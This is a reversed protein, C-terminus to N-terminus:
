LITRMARHYSIIHSWWMDTTWDNASIVWPKGVFIFTIMRRVLVEANQLQPHSLNRSNPLTQVETWLFVLVFFVRVRVCPYWSLIIFICDSYYIWIYVIGHAHTNTTRICRSWAHLFHRGLDLAWDGPHVPICRFASPHLLCQKLRSQSFASGAAFTGLSVAQHKPTQAGWLRQTNNEKSSWIIDFLMLYYWIIIIDFLILYYWIIIIDFLILYYYYWIIDFLWIHSANASWVLMPLAVAPVAPNRWCGGVADTTYQKKSEPGEHSVCCFHKM